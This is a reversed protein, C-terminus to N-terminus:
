PSADACAAMCEDDLAVHVDDRQRLGAELVGHGREARSTGVIMQALQKAEGVGDDEAEVAVGGAPRRAAM